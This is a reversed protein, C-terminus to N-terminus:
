LVDLIHEYEKEELFPEPELKGTSAVPRQAPSPRRKVPAAFKPPEERQKMPIGLGVIVGTTSQALKRKRDLEQRITSPATANHRDIDERLHRVAEALRNTQEDIVRRIVNADATDDPFSVSFLISNERITIDPYGSVSFTSARIRWLMPDGDFPIAIDLKTGRVTWREGPMFGRRFDGSVDVEAGAQREIHRQEVNLVLPRIVVKGVFYEELETPSAQLVYENDLARIEATVKDVISKLTAYTDGDRFPHM